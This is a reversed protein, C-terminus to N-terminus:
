ECQTVLKSVFEVSTIEHNMLSRLDNGMSMFMCTQQSNQMGVGYVEKNPWAGYLAGFGAGLQVFGDSEDVFEAKMLVVAGELNNYIGQEVLLVDYGDSELVIEIKDEYSITEVKDEYSVVEKEEKINQCGTLTALMLILLIFITKIKM